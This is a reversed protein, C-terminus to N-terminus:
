TVPFARAPHEAGCREQAAPRGRDGRPQPGEDRAGMARVFVFALVGIVAYGLFVPGPGWADLMVPFTQSVLFNAGWHLCVAVGLQQLVALGIAVVLAPRM